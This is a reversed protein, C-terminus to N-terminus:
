AENSPNGLKASRTAKVIGFLQENEHNKVLADVGILIANLMFGTDARVSKKQALERQLVAKAYASASTRSHRAGARISEALEDDLYVIIQQLKAM